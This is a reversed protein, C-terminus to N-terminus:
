YAPKIGEYQFLAKKMDVKVM